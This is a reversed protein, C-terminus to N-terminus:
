DDFHGAKVADVFDLWGDRPFVYAGLEPHKSDRVAVDGGALVQTEVCNNGGSGSFSSKAWNDPLDHYMM